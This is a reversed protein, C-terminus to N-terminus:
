RADGESLGLDELGGLKAVQKSGIVEDDRKVSPVCFM